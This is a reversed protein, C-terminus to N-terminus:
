RRKEARAAIRLTEKHSMLKKREDNAKMQEHM